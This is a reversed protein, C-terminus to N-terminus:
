GGLKWRFGVSEFKDKSRSLTDFLRYGLHKYDSQLSVSFPQVARALSSDIMVIDIKDLNNLADTYYAVVADSSGTAVSPLLMASSPTQTKINHELMVQYIKAEQLLRRTLVGITCEQPEGVAVRVGERALDKLSTIGKPNGKQVCIVIDTESVTTGPEFLEKVTNLYYTDCAMYTDPFGNGDTEVIGKMQTNLVGCGNYVTNVSVGEREEFEKIVPELALRNVSGAFFTLEPQDAWKDGDVVRFGTQEFVVLGKDRAAVFRAFHLAATVNQSSNLVGIQVTAEGADLEPTSIGKLEDFQNLTSDWIVGADVSGIDIDGAVDNVTPKFVGRTTVNKEIAEWHGSRTLLRRTKKGVAAADPNGLAVRVDPSALSEVSTITANEERVVIIPKMLALQLSENLLGADRAQRIYSDDAALYLDGTQSVELQSLLTNSGGYQLQVEIGFEDEYAKSVKEMPYRMGAACYVFLSEVKEGDGTSSSSHGSGSFLFWGLGAILVLSGIAMIAFLNTNAKRRM